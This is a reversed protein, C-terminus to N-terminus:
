RLGTSMRQCIGCAGVSVKIQALGGPSPASWGEPVESQRASLVLAYFPHCLGALLSIFPRCLPSHSVSIGVPFQSALLTGQLLHCLPLFRPLLLPPCPELCLSSHSFLGRSMCSLRSDPSSSANPLAPVEVQLSSVALASAPLLSSFCAPSPATHARTLLGANGSLLPHDDLPKVHSLSTTLGDLPHTRSRGPAPNLQLSGPPHHASSLRAPLHCSQLLIMVGSKPCFPPLSPPAEPFPPDGGPLLTLWLFSLGMTQAFTMRKTFGHSLSIKLIYNIHVDAQLKALQCCLINSSRLMRKRQESIKRQHFRKCIGLKAHTSITWVEATHVADNGM